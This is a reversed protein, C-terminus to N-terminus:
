AAPRRTSISCKEAFYLGKVHKSEMTSANVDKVSVGGRTVVSRRRWTRRFGDAAPKSRKWLSKGCRKTLEVVSLNESIGSQELVITLLKAPLLAHLATKVAFARGAAIGCSERTSSNTRSRLKLDIM